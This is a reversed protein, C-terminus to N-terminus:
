FEVEVLVPLHDSANAVNGSDFETCIESCVVRVPVGNERVFVYDICRDPQISDYTNGEPSIWRWTKLAEQIVPADPRANFDGTLFIPKGTEAYYTDFYDNITALQTLQTEDGFDIHTTAFVLKDFEMVAMARQERGKCRPLQIDDSRILKFDGSACAGVGYQGGQFPDLAPAFRYNWDGMGAAFEKLQDVEATRRAYNDVENLGMVDPKLEKMMSVVMDLSGGPIDTHTFTGVNYQVIRIKTKGTSACSALMAGLALLLIIKGTRM